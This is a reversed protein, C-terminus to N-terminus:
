GRGGEGRRMIRGQRMIIKENLIRNGGGREVRRCSMGICVSDSHMRLGTGHEYAMSPHEDIRGAHSRAVCMSSATLSWTQFSVDRTWTGHTRSPPKLQEFIVEGPQNLTKQRYINNHEDLRAVCM